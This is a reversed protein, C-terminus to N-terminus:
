FESINALPLKRFSDLLSITNFVLTKMGSFLYAARIEWLTVFKHTKSHRYDIDSEHSPVFGSSGLCRRRMIHPRDCPHSESHPQRNGKTQSYADARSSGNKDAPLMPSPQRFLSCGRKVEGPISSAPSVRSSLRIQFGCRACQSGNGSEVPKKKM